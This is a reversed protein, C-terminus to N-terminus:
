QRSRRASVRSREDSYETLLLVCDNGTTIEVLPEAGHAPHFVYLEYEDAGRVAMGHLAKSLRAVTFVEDTTGSYLDVMEAHESRLEVFTLGEVGLSPHQVCVQLDGHNRLLPKLARLLEIVAAGGNM